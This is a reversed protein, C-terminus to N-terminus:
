EKALVSERAEIDEEEELNTEGGGLIWLKSIYLLAVAKSSEM